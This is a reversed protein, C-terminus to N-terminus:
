LSAIQSTVIHSKEFGSATVFKAVLPTEVNQCDAITLEFNVVLSTEVTAHTNM